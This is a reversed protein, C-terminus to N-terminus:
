NGGIRAWPSVKRRLKLPVRRHRKTLSIITSDYISQKCRGKWTSELLPMVWTVNCNSQMRQLFEQVWPWPVRRTEKLRQHTLRWPEDWEALALLALLALPELLRCSTYSGMPTPPPPPQSVSGKRPKVLLVASRPFPDRTRRQLLSRTLTSTSNTHKLHQNLPHQDHYPVLATQTSSTSNLSCTM